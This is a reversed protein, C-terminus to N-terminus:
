ADVNRKGPPPDEPSSESLTYLVNSWDSEPSNVCAVARSSPDNNDYPDGAASYGITAGNDWEM